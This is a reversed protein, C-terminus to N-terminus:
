TASQTLPLRTLIETTVEAATKNETDIEIDRCQRYLPMREALLHRIESLGGAILNPRRANTSADSELRRAITEPDATLWIITTRSFPDPAKERAIEDMDRRESFTGSGKERAPRLLARNEPRLVVGGGLALVTRDRGILDRLNAAELDRFAPEGDDAFIAAISKGAHLELEVDADVWDWGLRLALQQAVTTKGTGRYGILAINM